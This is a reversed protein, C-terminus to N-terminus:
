SAPRWYPDGATIHRVPAESVLDQLWRACLAMGPEDSVVRGVLILGKNQGAYAADRAYESSEWERIEGAVVVDAAPLSVLTDAIASTGPMLTVTRIATEPKGVARIGGRGNLRSKVLSAFSQLSTESIGYVTTEGVSRAEGLGLTEALGQAFPDPNRARWHDSLRFVILSNEDIFENKATLVPDPPPPTAPAAGPPGRRVTPTRSDDQGYFTPQATIVFNAGAAVAQRLIDLTAMSTTVVGTVVTAPDGAKVTDVTEDRWPVGVNEQIRQIIQAATVASGAGMPRLGQGHALSTPIRGAVVGAAVM